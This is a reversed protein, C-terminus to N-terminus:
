TCNFKVENAMYLNSIEQINSGVNKYVRHPITRTRRDTYSCLMRLKQFYSYLSYHWLTDTVSIPALTSPNTLHHNRLQAILIAAAAMQPLKDSCITGQCVKTRFWLTKYWELSGRWETQKKTSGYWREHRRIQIRLTGLEFYQVSFRLESQIPNNANNWTNGSSDWLVSWSKKWGTREWNIMCFSRRM